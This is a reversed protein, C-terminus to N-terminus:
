PTHKDANQGRPQSGVNSAAFFRETSLPLGLGDNYPCKAGGAELEDIACNLAVLATHAFSDLRSLSAGKTDNRLRILKHAADYFADLLADSVVAPIQGGSQTPQNEM